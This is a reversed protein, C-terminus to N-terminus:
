FMQLIKETVADGLALHAEASYHIGDLPDVAIHAGADMFAAGHREAIRAYANALVASKVAGGSFMDALCGAELIPPPAIVLVKPAAFGPGATSGAITMLMKRISLSIDGATVSFRIKLDNTGLKLILLDIPAHSELIAPLIRLGNKHAGEVPDDHTTTRGPHGEEIVRWGAGLKQRVMSPWRVDEGHRRIDELHAMPMSGYTNSDGYCLLTKPSSM